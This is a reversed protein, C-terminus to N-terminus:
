IKLVHLIIEALQIDKRVVLWAVYLECIPKQHLLGAYRVPLNVTMTVSSLSIKISQSWPPSLKHSIGIHPEHTNLIVNQPGIQTDFLTHLNFFNVVNLCIQQRANKFSLRHCM